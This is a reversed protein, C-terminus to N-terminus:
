LAKLVDRQILPKRFAQRQKGLTARNNNGVAKARVLRLRGDTSTMGDPSKTFFHAAQRQIDALFRVDSFIHGRRNIEFLPQEIHDTISTLTGRGIQAVLPWIHVGHDM